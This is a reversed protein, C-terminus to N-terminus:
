ICARKSFPVTVSVVFLVTDGALIICTGKFLDVKVAKNKKTKKKDIQKNIYLFWWGLKTVTQINQFVKQQQQIVVATIFLKKDYKRVVPIVRRNIGRRKKQQM